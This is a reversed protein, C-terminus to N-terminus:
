EGESEQPAEEGEEGAEAAEAAAKAPASVTLVPADPDDMIEVGEPVQLDRVQATDCIVMGPVDLAIAEPINTPLCSVTVERLLLDLIGGDNFRAEENQLVVPVQVQVAEDLAVEHFDAHVADGRVPDFQVD